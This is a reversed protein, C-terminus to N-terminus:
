SDLSLIYSIACERKAARQAVVADIAANIAYAGAVGALALVKQWSLDGFFNIAVSGGIGGVAGKTLSGFLTEDITHLKRKFAHAAPRIETQVIKEIVVAYDGDDGVLPQKAQIISLHELFENRTKESARRYRIVDEMKMKELREGSVLEDFIAFSLDTVQIHNKTPSLKAIARAYKTGLLDGFPKADALPVFGHTTSLSLAFNMKASCLAANAILTKACGAPTSLDFPRIKSDDLLAMASDYSRLVDPLDLSTLKVSVDVNTRGEGYNGPTIQLDRFVPSQGIGSQFRRLFEPDNVDATVDALFDAEVRGHPADHVFLPVGDEQFKKEWQRLPSEMGISGFGSAFNFSPRDMFHIEDFFLIAKKLTAPDALMEPYYFVNIKDRM